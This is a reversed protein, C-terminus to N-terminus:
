WTIVRDHAVISTVVEDYDIPQHSRQWARAALDDRAAYIAGDFSVDDLVADHLLLLSVDHRASQARATAVARRDGIARIIHLIRM